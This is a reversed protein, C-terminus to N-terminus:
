PLTQTAVQEIPRFAPPVREPREMEVESLALPQGLLRQQLAVKCPSSSRRNPGVVSVLSGIKGM